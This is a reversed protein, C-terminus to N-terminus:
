NKQRSSSTILINEFGSKCIYRIWGDSKYPRIDIEGKRWDMRSHITYLVTDFEPKPIHSPCGFALHIHPRGSTGVEFCSIANIAKHGYKYARKYIHRNVRNIFWTATKEGHERTFYIRESPLYKAFNITASHTFTGWSNLFDVAAEQIVKESYTLPKRSM